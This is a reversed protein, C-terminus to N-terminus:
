KTKRYVLVTAIEIIIDTIKDMGFDDFAALM